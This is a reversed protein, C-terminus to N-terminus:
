GPSYQPAGTAPGSGPAHRDPGHDDPGGTLLLVAVLLLVVGAIIAFIKVWRPTGTDPPDTM